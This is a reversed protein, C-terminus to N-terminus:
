IATLFNFKMYVHRYTYWDVPNQSSILGTVKSRPQDHNVTTVLHDFVFFQGLCTSIYILRSLISNQTKHHTYSLGILWTHSMWSRSWSWFKYIEIHKKIGSFLFARAWNFGLRFFMSVSHVDTSQYFIDKISLARWIITIKM